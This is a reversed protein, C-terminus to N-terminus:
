LSSVIKNNSNIKFILSKGILSNYLVHTNHYTIRTNYGHNEREVTDFECNIIALIEKCQLQLVNTFV